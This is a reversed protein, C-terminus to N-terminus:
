VECMSDILKEIMDRALTLSAAIDTVDRNTRERDHEGRAAKHKRLVEFVKALEDDVERVREFVADANMKFIVNEGESEM